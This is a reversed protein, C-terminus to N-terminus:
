RVVKGGPSSVITEIKGTATPSVEVTLRLGQTAHDDCIRVNTNPAWIAHTSPRRLRVGFEHRAANKCGPIICSM